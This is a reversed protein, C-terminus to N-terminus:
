GQKLQHKPPAIIPKEAQFIFLNRNWLDPAEPKLGLYAQRIEITEKERFVLGQAQFFGIWGADTKLNIHGPIGKMRSINLLFWPIHRVQPLIQTIMEDTLHEFVDFSLLADFPQNSPIETRYRDPHRGFHKLYLERAEPSNDYGTYDWGADNMFDIMIGPGCGFDLVRKWHPPTELLAKLIVKLAQWNVFWDRDFFTRDYRVRGGRLLGRLTRTMSKLAPRLTKM